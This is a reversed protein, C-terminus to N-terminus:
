GRKSSQRELAKRSILLYTTMEGKGKVQIVGREELLYKDKLLEFTSASVQIANPLGHSEMRSATNVADGWLDYIFKKIGIVGAVVPGSNIGIRISFQEGNEISYRSMEEIMDLAMEAIAEAHDSRKNPVGGVVMYADGITKIKELNHLEALRDFASFIQNLLEVLAQPSIRASLTTFGVIDAFLVTVEPFSDAIASKSNKLQKAISEPLMNLLLSESKEQEICLNDLTQQLESTADRVAKQLRDVSTSVEQAMSQMTTALMGIEDNSKIDVTASFDQAALKQAYETLQNLPQSVRKVLVYSASVSLLFLVLILCVQQALATRIQAKILEKDMGVHVYGSAGALIPASIDIVEGMGEIQLNEIAIQDSNDSLNRVREPITPVFTHAIIEKNTDVVLVYVVGRIELFQDVIAQITEPPSVSIINESSNAVSRAIAIGKSRYEQKLNENLNWGSFASTAIAVAGFLFIQGVLTKRFLM